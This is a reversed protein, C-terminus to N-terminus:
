FGRRELQPRSPQPEERPPAAGGGGAQVADFGQDEASAWRLYVLAGVLHVAAACEFILGWDHTSNLVLGTAYVSASAGVSALANTLGYLIGSYRKTIDQHNSGYGSSSFGCLSIWATVLAIAAAASSSAAAAGAGVVGGPSAAAAAGEALAGLAAAASHGGGRGGAAVTALQVLCVVPGLSAVGQMLKRTQTRDLVQNNVLGDAIWGSANTAAVTALFPLILAASSGTVDVGYVEHYFTPLWSFALTNGITVSVQAAVIAWFAPSAAFAGWPVDQLRLAPAAEAAAAAAAGGGGAAPPHDPLDRWLALWFIGLSGFALFVAEWGLHSIIAPALLFSGITGLQHGSSVAALARSKSGAPVREGVLQQVSPYTVGEGLGMVVRSGLLAPLAAGAAGPTLMTFASWLGVGAALVPKPGWRAAFFGGLLNTLMYGGFFAASVAGKTGDDWGFQASMPLLAVSMAARDISCIFAVAACLAVLRLGEASLPVDEPPDAAAAAAADGAAADIAAAAAEAAAAQAPTPLLGATARQLRLLQARPLAVVNSLVAPQSHLLLERQEAAARRRWAASEEAAAPSYKPRPAAPVASAAGARDAGAARPRLPRRRAAVLPPYLTYLPRRGTEAEFQAVVEDVETEWDEAAELGPQPAAGAAGAAGGAARWSAGPQRREGLLPRIGDGQRGAMDEVVQEMVRREFTVAVDFREHPHDQWRQPAPKVLVDRERTPRWELSTYTPHM